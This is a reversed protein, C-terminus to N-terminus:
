QCGTRVAAVIRGVEEDSLAPYLPLSVAKEWAEEAGPFGNLRLYRHLPRFVPRRAQVGLAHLKTLYHAAPQPGGVVYRYYVREGDAPVLPLDLPLDQLGQRYRAAIAQRRALFQPLRQLQALGLAAQLDTMKYNFRPTDDEQEDYQRLDRALALVRADNSLLMGGEGTTILKTAYFSFVGVAGSSGVPRGRYMAGLAQAGDEIVPLGLAQLAELDAPLGFSHIVILAKTRASCAMKAAEPDMNFSYPDCDVLRPVARVARVAHLLAACAYTPILVEDGEGVHLALLALHLAATGSSTAVGGRVGLTCAIAQEFAAVRAGQVIHGSQLVEALGQLEEDGLTPRSHPISSPPSDSTSASGHKDHHTM